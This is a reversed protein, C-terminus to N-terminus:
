QARPTTGAGTAGGRWAPIVLGQATMHHGLGTEDQWKCRFNVLTAKATDEIIENWFGASDGARKVGPMKCGDGCDDACDHNDDNDLEENSM